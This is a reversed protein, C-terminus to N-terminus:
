CAPPWSEGAKARENTTSNRCVRASFLWQRFARGSERSYRLLQNWPVSCICWNTVRVHRESRVDPWPVRRSIRLSGSSPLWPTAEPEASLALDRILSLRGGACRLHKSQGVGLDGENACSPNGGLLGRWLRLLSPIQRERSGQGAVSGM